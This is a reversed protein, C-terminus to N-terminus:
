RRPRSFNLGFLEAKLFERGWRRYAHLSLEVDDALLGLRGDAQSTLPFCSDPPQGPLSVWRWEAEARVSGVTAPCLRLGRLVYVGGNERRWRGQIASLDLREAFLPLQGPPRAGFWLLGVVIWVALYLGQALALLGLGRWVWESSLRRVMWGALLVGGGAGMVAVERSFSSGAFGFVTLAVGPLPWLWRWLGPRRM